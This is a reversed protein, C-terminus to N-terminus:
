KKYGEAIVDEYKAQNHKFMAVVFSCKPIIKKNEKRMEDVFHDLIKQSVGQGRFDPRVYTHNAIVTHDDVPLYTIEAIVDGMDDLKHYGNKYKEFEM